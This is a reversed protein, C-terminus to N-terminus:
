LIITWEKDPAAALNPNRLGCAAIEPGHHDTLFRIEAENPAPPLNRIQWNVWPNMAVFRNQRMAKLAFDVTAMTGYNEDFFKKGPYIDKKLAMCQWPAGLVHRPLFIQSWASNKVNERSMGQLLQFPMGDANPYWGGSFLQDGHWINGSAMAIHPVLAMEVLQELRCERDPELEAALVLIVDGNVKAIAENCTIAISKGAYPFCQLSKISPSDDRLPQIYIEVDAYKEIEHIKDLLLRSPELDEVLLIVSCLCRKKPYYLLRFLNNKTDGWVANRGARAAADLYAKRSSELVYPKALISLATSEKHARWHYLIKPIHTIRGHDLLGTIRLRLDTDQTGETGVRLGGLSRLISTDYTSLHGTSFLDCDFDPKFVPSRRVNYENIRDDDSYIFGSDPKRAITGAVEALAHPSLLDDHDLFATFPAEVMELATNSARCIHGNEERFKVRIRDDDRAFRELIPRIERKTSADDAICLQWNHYTQNLVSEIAQRLYDPDPNWVPTVVAIRPWSDTIELKDFKEAVEVWADFIAPCVALSCNYIGAKKLLEIGPKLEGYHFQRIKKQWISMQGALPLDRDEAFSKIKEAQVKYYQLTQPLSAPRNRALEVGEFREKVPLSSLFSLLSAPNPHYQWEQWCREAPSGSLDPIECPGENLWNSCGYKVGDEQCFNGYDANINDPKLRGRQLFSNWAGCFSWSDFKYKLRGKAEPVCTYGKPRFYIIRKCLDPFALFGLKEKFGGAKNFDQCRLLLCGPHALQFFRRKKALRNAALIGEYLYHLKLQFDFTLGMFAIRKEQGTMWDALLLPNAGAIQSDSAMCDLMCQLSDKEPLVSSALFLLYNESDDKLFLHNAMSAIDPFETPTFVKYAQILNNKHLNECEREAQCIESEDTGMCYLQAPMPPLAQALAKLAPILPFAGSSLVIKLNM